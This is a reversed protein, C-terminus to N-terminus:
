TTLVSGCAPLVKAYPLVTVKYTLLPGSILVTETGATTPESRSEAFDAIVFTPRLTPFMVYRSSELVFPVTKSTLGDAPVLTVCFVLM